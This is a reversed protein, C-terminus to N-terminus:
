EADTAMFTGAVHAIPDAPDGDHAQGRVFAIRRTIRYCEGRGIVCAGPKAGRLYDVRMDLTAQPRFAGRRVWVAMSTAMDMMAIVPGSALVGSAEDGVLEERWDIAFEAWDPGHGLFRAGLIRNHGHAAVLHGARAPDFSPDPASTM